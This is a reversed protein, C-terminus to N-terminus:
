SHYKAFIPARDNQVSKAWRSVRGLNQGFSSLVEPTKALYLTLTKLKDFFVLFVQTMQQCPAKSLFM